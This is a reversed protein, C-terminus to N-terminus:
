FEDEEGDEVADTKGGQAAPLSPVDVLTLPRYVKSDLYARVAGETSPTIAYISGAGILKSYEPSAARIYNSGYQTVTSEPMAPVDVRFFAAGGFYETSVRGAYSQHGMVEVIAWGEFKAQEEPM